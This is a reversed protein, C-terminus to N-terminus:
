RQDAFLRWAISGFWWMPPRDGFRADASRTLRAGFCRMRSAQDCKRPRTGCNAAITQRGVVVDAIALVSVNVQVQPNMARQNREEVLSKSAIGGVVKM